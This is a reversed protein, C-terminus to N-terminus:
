VELEAWVPAHDSPRPWARPTKDIGSSFCSDALSKHMLILDIRLGRNRRFAASRYDWWSFFGEKKEFLRFVDVFGLEYFTKLALREPTSCLVRERCADPDYVDRDEPAINFDGVIVYLPHHVSEAAVYERIKRLWELKYNFKDSGVEQGNVVYLNLIRLPGINAAMIRRNDDMLGPIDTIINSVPLSPHRRVLLAVGNYAPQGSYFVDYGSELFASEPFRDDAVKTEQIALVDPQHTGLWQLVHEQRVRLSNVNWTAIKIRM